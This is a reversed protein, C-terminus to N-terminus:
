RQSDLGPHYGSGAGNGFAVNYDRGEYNEHRSAVKRSYAPKERKSKELDAKAVAAESSNDKAATKASDQKTALMFLPRRSNGATATRELIPRQYHLVRGLTSDGSTAIMFGMIAAFATVIYFFYAFLSGLV